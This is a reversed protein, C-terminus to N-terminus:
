SRTIRRYVMSLFFGFLIYSISFHVAVLTNLAFTKEGKIFSEFGMAPEGILSSMFISFLFTPNAVDLNLVFSYSLWLSLTSLLLCSLWARLSSACMISGRRLWEEILSLLPLSKLYKRKCFSERNAQEAARFQDASKYLTRLDDWLRSLFHDQTTTNGGFRAKVLRQLERKRQRIDILGSFGVSRIEARVESKHLWRVADLGTYESMGLLMEDAEAALIAGILWEQENEGQCRQAQTLLDAALPLNIYPSFHGLKGSLREPPTLMSAITFQDDKDWTMLKTLDYLSGLPKPLGLVHAESGDNEIEGLRAESERCGLWPKLRLHKTESTVARVIWHKQLKSQPQDTGNHPLHQWLDSHVSSLRQRVNGQKQKSRLPEKGEIDPFRLDTDRIVLHMNGQTNWINEQDFQKFTTITWCRFGFRYAAYAHFLTSNIDEDISVMVKELRSGLVRRQKDTQSLDPEGAETTSSFVNAILRSKVCTRIGTPDFLMRQGEVFRRVIGQIRESEENSSYFHHDLLQTLFAKEEIMGDPIAFLWEAQVIEECSHRDLDHFALIQLQPFTMILRSLIGMQHDPDHTWASAGSLAHTKHGTNISEKLEAGINVFLLTHYLETPHCQNLQNLLDGLSPVKDYCVCAKSQKENHYPHLVKELEPPFSPGVVWFHPNQLSPTLKKETNEKWSISSSVQKKTVLDVDSSRKSAKKEISVGKQHAPRSELRNLSAKLEYLHTLGSELDPSETNSFDDIALVKQNLEDNQHDLDELLPKFKSFWLQKFEDHNKAKLTFLLQKLDHKLRSLQMEDEKVRSNASEVSGNEKNRMIRFAAEIALPGAKSGDPLPTQHAWLEFSSRNMSKGDAHHEWAGQLWLPFDGLLTGKSSMYPTLALSRLQHSWQGLPPAPSIDSLSLLLVSMASLDHDGRCDISEFLFLRHDAPCWGQPVSVFGAGSYHVYFHHDPLESPSWGLINLESHHVIVILPSPKDLLAKFENRDQVCTISAHSVAANVLGSLRQHRQQPLSSQAEGDFFLFDKM